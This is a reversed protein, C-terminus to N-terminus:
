PQTTEIYIYVHQYINLPYAEKVTHIKIEISESQQQKETYKRNLIENYKM